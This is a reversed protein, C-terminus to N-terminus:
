IAIKWKDPPMMHSLYSSRQEEIMSNNCMKLRHCNTCRNVLLPPVVQWVAHYYQSVPVKEVIRCRTNYSYSSSCQKFLIKYFQFFRTSTPVVLYKTIMNPLISFKSTSENLYELINITFSNSSTSHTKRSSWVKRKSDKM